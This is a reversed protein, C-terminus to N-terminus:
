ALARRVHARRSEYRGCLPTYEHKVFSEREDHAERHERSGRVTLALAGLRVLSLTTAMALRFDRSLGAFLGTRVGGGRARGDVAHRRHLEFDAVRDRRAALLSGFQGATILR